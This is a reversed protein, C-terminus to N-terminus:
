WAECVVVGTRYAFVATKDGLIGGPEGDPYVFWFLKEESTVKTKTMLGFVREKITKDGKPLDPLYLLRATVDGM